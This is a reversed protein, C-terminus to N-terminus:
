NKAPIYSDLLNYNENMNNKAVEHSYVGLSSNKIEGSLSSRYVGLAKAIENQPKCIENLAYIRCRQEYTLHHYGKPM